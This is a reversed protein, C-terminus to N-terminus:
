TPLVTCDHFLLFFDLHLRDVPGRAADPDELEM